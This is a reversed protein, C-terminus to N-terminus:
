KLGGDTLLDCEWLGLAGRAPVPNEWAEPNGLIWAYRGPSFDGFANEQQWSDKLGELVSAEEADYIGPKLIPAWEQRGVIERVGVLEVTGLVHGEPLSGPLYAAGIFDEAGLPWLDLPCSKKAAHIALPGRYKTSWSRTEISKEGLVVLSAWPQTLTLAKM